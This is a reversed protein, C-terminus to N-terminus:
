RNVLCKQKTRLCFFLLSKVHVDQVPIDKGHDGWPGGKACIELLKMPTVVPAHVTPSEENNEGSKIKIFLSVVIIEKEEPVMKGLGLGFWTVDESLGAFLDACRYISKAQGVVIGAALDFLQDSEVFRRPLNSLLFNIFLVVLFFFIVINVVLFSLVVIIVVVENGLTTTVAIIVVTVIFFKWNM